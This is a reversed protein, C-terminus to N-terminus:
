SWNYDDRVKIRWSQFEKLRFLKVLKNRLEEGPFPKRQLIYAILPHASSPDNIHTLAIAADRQLYKDPHTLLAILPEAARSDGIAGLAAAAERCITINDSKLLGILPEVALPHGIKGLSKIASIRVFIDRRNIFQILVEVARPDGIEGLASVIFRIASVKTTAFSDILPLVAPEGIQILKEWQKQNILQTIKERIM